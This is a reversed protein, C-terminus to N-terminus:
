HFSPWNVWLSYELAAVFKQELSVELIVGAFYYSFCIWKIVLRRQTRRRFCLFFQRGEDTGLCIIKIYLWFCIFNRCIYQFFFTCLDVSVTRKEVRFYESFSKRCVSFLLCVHCIKDMSFLYGSFPFSIDLSKMLFLSNLTWPQCLFKVESLLSSLDIKIKFVDFLEIIRHEKRNACKEIQSQELCFNQINTQM